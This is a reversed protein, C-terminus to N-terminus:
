KSLAPLFIYSYSSLPPFYLSAKQLKSFPIRKITIAGLKSILLSLFSSNFSMTKETKIIDAKLDEVKTLDEKVSDTYSKAFSEEIYKGFDIEFLQGIKYANKEM